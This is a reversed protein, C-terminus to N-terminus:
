TVSAKCENACSNVYKAPWCSILRFKREFQLIERSLQLLRSLNCYSCLFVFFIHINILLAKMWDVNLSHCIIVHNYSIQYSAPRSWWMIWEYPSLWRLFFSKCSTNDAITPQKTLMSVTLLNLNRICIISIIHCHFLQTLTHYFTPRHMKIHLKIKSM